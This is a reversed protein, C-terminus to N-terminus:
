AGEQKEAGTWTGIERGAADYLRLTYSYNQKGNTYFQFGTDQVAVTFRMFSENELVGELVYSPTISASGVATLELKGAAAGRLDGVASFTGGNGDSNGAYFCAIGEQAKLVDSEYATYSILKWLYHTRLVVDGCYTYLIGRGNGSPDRWDYIIEGGSLLNERQAQRSIGAKTLPDRGGAMWILCVALVTLLYNRLTKGPRSWRKRRKM